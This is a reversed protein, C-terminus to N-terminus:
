HRMLCLWETSVNEGTAFQTWYFKPPDSLRDSTSIAARQLFRGAEYSIGVAQTPTEGAACTTSNNFHHLLQTAADPLLEQALLARAVLLGSSLILRMLPSM